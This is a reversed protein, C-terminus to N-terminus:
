RLALVIITGAKWNEKVSFLDSVRWAEWDEKWDM